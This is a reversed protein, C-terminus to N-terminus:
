TRIHWLYLLTLPSSSSPLSLRPPEEEDDDNDNDIGDGPSASSSPRKKKKKVGGEECVSHICTWRYMHWGWCASVPFSLCGSSTVGMERASPLCSCIRGVQSVRKQKPKKPQINKNKRKNDVANQLHQWSLFYDFSLRVALSRQTEGFM